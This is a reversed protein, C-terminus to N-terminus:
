DYEVKGQEINGEVDVIQSFEQERMVDPVIENELWIKKGSSLFLYVGVGSAKVLEVHDLNVFNRDPLKLWNAM